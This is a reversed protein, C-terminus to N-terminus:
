VLSIKEEITQNIKKFLEPKAQNYLTPLTKLFHQKNHELIPILKNHVQNLKAISWTSVELLLHFIAELRHNQSLSDYDEDWFDSFTKFGMDQLLQLCGPNGYVVFPHGFALPKFIKETFYPYPQDDYTEFVVSCFTESYYETQGIGWDNKRFQDNNIKIPIRKNLESHNLKKMYWAQNNDLMSAQTIQDYSQYHTRDLDGIYSFYSKELLNFKTFFYYLTQRAVSARNNLSLFHYKINKEFEVQDFYDTYYTYILPEYLFTFFEQYQDFLSKELRHAHVIIYYNKLKGTELLHNKSNCLIEELWNTDHYELFLIVVIKGTIHLFNNKTDYNPDHTQLVYVNKHLPNLESLLTPPGGPRITM